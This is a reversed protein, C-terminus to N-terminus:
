HHHWALLTAPTVIGTFEDATPSWGRGERRGGVSTTMSDFGNPALREKLVRNERSPLGIALQVTPEDM